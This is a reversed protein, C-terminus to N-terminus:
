APDPVRLRGARAQYEVGIADLRAATADLDEEGECGLRLERLQRYPAESIRIQGPLDASGWHGGGGEFGIERYFADLVTPEPVGVEMGLLRHLAM